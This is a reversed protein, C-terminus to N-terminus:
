EDPTPLTMTDIMRYCIPECCPGNPFDVAYSIDFDLEAIPGDPGHFSLTGVTPAFDRHVLPAFEGSFCGERNRPEGDVIDFTCTQTEGGRSDPEFETGVVTVSYAGDVLGPSAPLGYRFGDWCAKQTCLGDARCGKAQVRVVPAQECRAACGAGEPSVSGVVRDTTLEGFNVTGSTIEALVTPPNFGEFLLADGAYLICPGSKVEVLDGGSVM